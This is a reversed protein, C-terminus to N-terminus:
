PLTAKRGARRLAAERQVVYLGSAVVVLGGAVSWGDPLNGWIVYGLAVAWVLGMYEFPAVVSLPAARFASTM